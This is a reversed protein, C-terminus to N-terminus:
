RGKQNGDSSVGTPYIVLAIRQSEAAPSFGYRAPDAPVGDALNRPARVIGPLLVKSPVRVIGLVSVGLAVPL